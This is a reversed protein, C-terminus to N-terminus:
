YRGYTARAITRFRELKPLLHSVNPVLRHADEKALAPTPQKAVEHSLPHRRRHTPPVPDSALLVPLWHTPCAVPHNAEALKSAVIPTMM